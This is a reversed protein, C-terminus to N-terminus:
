FTIEWILTLVFAQTKHVPAFVIRNYMVGDNNFLAAETLSTNAQAFGFEAHIVAKKRKDKGDETSIEVLDRNVLFQNIPVRAVEADLQTDETTVPKMGAGVALHSIPPLGGLIFMRAVLDRGSLVIHNPSTLTQQVQGAVDRLHLTLQGRMELNEAMKM